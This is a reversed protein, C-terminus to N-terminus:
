IVQTYQKKGLEDLMQCVRCLKKNTNSGCKKCQYLNKKNKRFPRIKLGSKYTIFKTGPRKEEMRNLFIRIDSRMAEGAYPCIASQFDINNFYAYLSIEREPIECLPKVRRVFNAFSAGSPDYASMRSIDGRLMNLLVSQAMDDLNHGTALRDAGVARAVDNLARRRLVGCFSCTSLKRNKAAISDMTEGFLDEFSHVIIEVGLRHCHKKALRLAEKRYGNIGEDICIAKLEAKPKNEELEALIDLLVLSDKGGSVGLAITSDYEFM